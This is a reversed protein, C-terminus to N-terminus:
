AAVARLTGPPLLLGAVEGAPVPRSFLYGQADDCKMARLAAAQEITEVGEATVNMKLTHGLSIITEVVMRAQESGKDMEDIFSRDIKIRDFPFKLMYGLSSYGTGFDDMVISVGLTKLERLQELISETDRLLLSETIELLLRTAEIGSKELATKTSQVVSRRRFQASSLNVSIQLHKPWAAAIKCAEELVWSGLEDILGIDEAVPIFETPSVANGAEDRLRLLAEFGKIESGAVKVLPQFYLEFSKAAVAARVIEELRLRKHKDDNFRSEFACHGNRGRSKVVYSATDANAILTLTSDSDLPACATGISATIVLEHGLIQFPTKFAGVIRATAREVQVADRFGFQAVVFEDGGFRAAVDGHRLRERLRGSIARLAEDGFEHGYRDNIEKFFDIDIFHVATLESRDSGTNLGRTLQTLFNLRNPLETLVDHNALFQVSADAALKQRTRRYFGLAPLAFGLAALLAIVTSTWTFAQRLKTANRTEDAYIEATGVWNGGRLIPLYAEAVLQGHGHGEDAQMTVISKGLSVLKQVDPRHNSLNGTVKPANGRLVDSDLVLRGRPDYLRVKEIDSYDLASRIFSTSAASPSEGALIGQIDPLSKEFFQALDQSRAKADDILLRGVAQENILYTGGALSFGLIALASALKHGSVSLLSRM